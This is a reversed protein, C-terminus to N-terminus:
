NAIKLSGISLTLYSAQINIVDEVYALAKPVDTLSQYGRYDYQIQQFPQFDFSHAGANNM